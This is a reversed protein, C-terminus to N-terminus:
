GEELHERWCTLVTLFKFIMKKIFDQLTLGKKGKLKSYEGGGGRRWWYV